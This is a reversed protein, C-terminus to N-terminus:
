GLHILGSGGIPAEAYNDYVMSTYGEWTGVQYADKIWKVHNLGIFVGTPKMAPYYGTVPGVIQEKGMEAFCTQISDSFTDEHQVVPSVFLAPKYLVKTVKRESDEDKLKAKKSLATTSSYKSINIEQVKKAKGLLQIDQKGGKNYADISSKSIEYAIVLKGEEGDIMDIYYYPEDEVFVIGSDVSSIKLM